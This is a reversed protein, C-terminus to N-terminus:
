FYVSPSDHPKSGVENHLGGCQGANFVDEDGTAYDWRISLRWRAEYNDQRWPCHIELATCTEESPGSSALRFSLGSTWPNDHFIIRVSCNILKLNDTKFM